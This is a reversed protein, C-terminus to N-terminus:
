AARRQQKRLRKRESKSLYRADREDSEDAADEAEDWDAAATPQQERRAPPTAAAPTMAVIPATTEKAAPKTATKAAGRPKHEILDQVDLVVYRAFVLMAALSLTHGVMPVASTLADTWAGLWTPAWGLLAAAAVGYCGATAIVLTLASRCEAIERILRVGIWAAVVLTPILWWEQGGSTLSWGTAAAAIASALSHVGVVSDVSAALAGGAIWNWVRYGGRVDEIRHRRLSYILRSLGAVTLLAIASTWATLGSALQRAVDTVAVGPLVAAASAAGHVLVQATAALATGLAIAALVTRKRRPVYDTIQPHHEVSALEGYRPAAAGGTVSLSVTAKFGAARAEENLVRRRRGGRAM